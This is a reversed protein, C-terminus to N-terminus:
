GLEFGLNLVVLESLRVKVRVRARVRGGLKSLKTGEWLSHCKGGGLFFSFVQMM